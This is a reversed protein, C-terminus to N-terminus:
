PSLEHGRVFHQQRKDFGRGLARKGGRRALQAATLRGDARRHGAQFDVQVQRQEVAAAALGAQGRGSVDHQLPGFVDQGGGTAQFYGGALQGLPHFRLQRHRQGIGILRVAEFGGETGELLTVRVQLELTQDGFAVVQHGQHLAAPRLNGEGFHLVAVRRVQDTRRHVLARFDGQEHGRGVRQCPQVVDILVDQLLM